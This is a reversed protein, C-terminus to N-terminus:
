PKETSLSPIWSHFKVSLAVTQFIELYYETDRTVVNLVPRGVSDSLQEYISYPFIMIMDPFNLSFAGIFSITARAIAMGRGIQPSCTIYAREPPLTTLANM